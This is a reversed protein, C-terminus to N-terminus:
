RTDLAEKGGLQKTRFALGLVRNLQDSDLAPIDDTPMCDVYLNYRITDMTRRRGAYAAAVRDAFQVPDEASFCVDLRSLQHKAGSSEWEVTFKGSTDDYELVQVPEFSANERNFAKAPVPQSSSSDLSLWDALNSFREFETNDFTELPLDNSVPKGEFTGAVLDVQREKLLDLLNVNKFERRKRELLVERPASGEAAQFPANIKPQVARDNRQKGAAQQKRRHRRSSKKDGSFISGQPRQVGTQQEEVVEAYINDLKSSKKSAKKSPM